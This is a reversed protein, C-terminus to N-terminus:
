CDKLFESKSKGKPIKIANIEEGEKIIGVLTGMAFGLEFVKMIKDLDNSGALFPEEMQPIIECRASVWTVIGMTGQAAQIVRYWSASSPGAAEKQAGGVEWQEELTGPGAAAGTRFLDGSGYVIEVNCLPDAIDWHYKPMVVPERELM